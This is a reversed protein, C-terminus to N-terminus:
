EKVVKKVAIVKGDNVLKVLYVGTAYRSLDIQITEATVPVVQLRRGYIDFVHIEPTLNCTEPTLRINVIGTTPNPYLTLDATGHEAIGTITVDQCDSTDSCEGVTIVCAYSGSVEPAFQAQTAGEIPENTACDIWQYEANEQIAELFGDGVEVYYVETNVTIVTVEQSATNTCGNADTGTVTYTGAETVTLEATTEDGWTYTTAGTATLTTNGGECFATEGSITVTPLANVTVEATATNTCGNADTGTVTYTGAETVTLEGTTEDGWTYTAAGFATLVTSGGFCFATDGSITVTPLTNMTVEVSATNECGNADTGTVTYTGAADVTLEASTENGWTYTTAGSATLVSNGGECFATEGSITITPLANVTVEVSATNECGNADTGTVTYTGAENVTLEATTEDGWTYTTAGSATLTTSGGECFATEGSITVTPLANVAVEVSAMNECGNADTGTVTYTGAADVTLEATTVTGWTYTTAGSATLTTSGGECFVTEGSITIIPLAHVTVEVSTMAVCNNSDTGTVTYTGAATAAYEATNGVPDASVPLTWVYTEAGTATLTTYGGECFSTAGSVAITPLANVTLHLVVISDCTGPREITNSYEHNGVTPATVTFGNANYDEGVCISANINTVAESGITLHLTVTSDCGYVTELSLTYDGAESANFGNQNYTEGECIQAHIDRTVAQHLSLNLVMTDICSNANESYYYYIGSRTVTTDALEWYFETGCTDVLVEAYDGHNVTLHLTDASACGRENEYEYIYTDTLNRMEGNWMFGGCVTTDTVNHTGYNVTLHLTDASPCGSENDYEYIYTDSVTYTDGHWTFSECVTTDTVNHTGYRVTLNLTVTSDCGEANVFTQTYIGSERYTTDNWTYFECTDVTFSSESSHRITIHWEDVVPCGYTAEAPTVVDVEASNRYEENNLVYLDCTDVYHHITDRQELSLNLVYYTACYENNELRYTYLGAEGTNFGNENYILGECITQDITVTDVALMTYLYDASTYTVVISDVYAAGGSLAIYFYTANQEAAVEWTVSSSPNLDQTELSVGDTHNEKSLPTSSLWPTWQRASGNEAAYMTISSIAGPLVTENYPYSGYPTNVRMQMTADNTYLDCWGTIETGVVKSVATWQDDTGYGVVNEFSARSIVIEDNVVNSTSSFVAYFTTDSTPTFLTYLVPSEETQGEFPQLAWGAFSLNGCDDAIPFKMIPEGEYVSFVSVTDWGAYGNALFNVTYNEPEAQQISTVDSYGTGVENTAFARVYYTEFGLGALRYSFDTGAVIDTGLVVKTCAEDDVDPMTNFTSYVFGYERLTCLPDDVAIRGTFLMDRNDLVASCTGMSPVNECDTPEPVYDELALLALEITSNYQYVLATLNQPTTPIETGSLINDRYRIQTVIDSEALAYTASNNAAGFTGTAAFTVNMVKVFQAQYTEDLQALSIELPAIASDSSLVEGVYEPILELMGNYTQLKGIFTSVVMSNALGNTTNGAQDYIYMAATADQIYTYRSNGSPGLGTFTVVSAGTLRYLTSNDANQARLEAITAVDTLAPFTYTVTNVNSADSGLYAIAKVTTSTSVTFPVSYVASSEDPTTGDLTYHIEAGETECSISVTQPVYYTGGGPSFTPTAVSSPAGAEYRFFRTKTNKINNNVSTYSRWDQNNYVGIYRDRATNHLFYENQTTNLDFTFLKEAETGVRLGRNDSICYLWTTTSGNPYFVYGDTANGSINWKLNDEVVSTIQDGSVAIEVALPISTGNDNTMARGSTIDVIVFIDTTTLESIDVQQWTQASIRGWFSFLMVALLLASKVLVNKKM